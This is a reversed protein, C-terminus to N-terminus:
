VAVAVAATYVPCDTRVTPTLRTPPPLPRRAQKGMYYFGRNVTLRPSSLTLCHRSPKCTQKNTLLPTHKGPYLQSNTILIEPSKLDQTPLQEKAPTQHAPSLQASSIISSTHCPFPPLLHIYLNSSVVRSHLSSNNISDNMGRHTNLPSRPTRL